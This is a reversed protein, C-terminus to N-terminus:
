ITESNEATFVYQLHVFKYMEKYGHEFDERPYRFM